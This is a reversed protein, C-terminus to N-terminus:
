ASANESKARLLRVHEVFQGVQADLSERRKEDTFRGDEGIAKDAQPLSYMFPMVLTGLGEIPQRLHWLCRLGGIMSPSASLLFGIHGKLPMPKVRSVWDIANKLTGPYSFNYEPTAIMFADAAELRKCLDLCGEPIGTGDQVDQNYLPMNFDAFDALEVEAGHARANEAALAILKKNLSAGRLSAAFALIKM